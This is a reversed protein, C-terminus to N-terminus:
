SAGEGHRLGHKKEGNEAEGGDLAESRDLAVRGDILLAGASHITNKCGLVVCVTVAKDKRALDDFNYVVSRRRVRVVHAVLGAASGRVASAAAATAVATIVTDVEIASDEVTVVM